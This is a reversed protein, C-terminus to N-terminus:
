GPGFEVGVMEASLVTLSSVEVEVDIEVDVEMDDEEDVEM